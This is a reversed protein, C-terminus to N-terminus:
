IQWSILAAAANLAAYAPHDRAQKHTTHCPLTTQTDAANGTERNLTSTSKRPRRTLAPM